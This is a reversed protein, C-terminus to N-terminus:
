PCNNTGGTTSNRPNPAGTAFDALNNNTDTCGNNLRLDATTNTQVPAPNSGEFCTANGYGVFDIVGATNATPCTAGGLPTTGAASGSLATTNNVLAVKGGGVARNATGTADPTPLLAGVAGDSGLQILYYGKAQISCTQGVPCLRVVTWATGTATATQVSWASVDIAANSRNFLEVFDNRYQAGTTGGGAYIQSIVVTVGDDNTITGMGQSDAVAAGTVNSLTVFFTEDFEPVTDGNVTVDFTYTQNGQSITQGTLSKAVYDNDESAPNDDQATGDSTAIDFTVGGAPAPQLLSVTFTFTTTGSNGENKTVDNISIVPSDDNTITGQGQADSVNAGSVNTLNVFFTENPEINLDGNVLVDFTYSQNGQSITQGTLSKAAYDNDAVTATNDQTGIDFTVTAPAPDSLSVTFSYLTTGNNGENHSVDNISLTPLDDNQITGVAQGDTVTAGVVNAVNVMFTETPEVATDGNVTVTFTYTQQGAPIIQN